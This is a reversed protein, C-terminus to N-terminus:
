DCLGLERRARLRVDSVTMDSDASADGIEIARRLAEFSMAKREQDRRVLDRFYESINGYMGSEIQSAIYASMPDPVTITHKIM